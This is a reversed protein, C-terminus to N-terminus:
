LMDAQSLKWYQRAFDILYLSQEKTTAYGLVTLAQVLYTNHPLLHNRIWIDLTYQYDEIRATDGHVFATKEKENMLAGVSNAVRICEQYFRM